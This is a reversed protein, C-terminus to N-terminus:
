NSQQQIAGNKKAQSSQTMSSTKTSDQNPQSADEKSTQPLYLPGMQGCGSLAISMILLTLFSQKKTM